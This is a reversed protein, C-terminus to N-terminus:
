SSVIKVESETTPMCSWNHGSPCVAKSKRESWLLCGSSSHPRKCPLRVAGNQDSGRSGQGRNGLKAPSLGIGPKGSFGRTIDSPSRCLWKRGGCVRWEERQATGQDGRCCGWQLPWPVPVLLHLSLSSAQHQLPLPSHIRPSADPM